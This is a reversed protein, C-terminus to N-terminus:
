KTVIPPPPALNFHYNLGARVINGDFRTRAFPAAVTFPAGLSTHVLPPMAFSVGGLDYFLYEVKLSWNPYFLWEVGGGATWGALTQDFTGFSFAPFFTARSFIQGIAVNAQADGYALGGTGYILFTPWLLFGVRVRETGLWDLNRTATLGQFLRSGLNTTNAVSFVTERRSSSAIGQLDGEAGILWNNWQYNYGWQGGGIFGDFRVGVGTTALAASALGLPRFGATNSVNFTATTIQNDSSWTYGANLGVFYGTWQPPPPPPPPPLPEAARAVASLAMAGAAALLIRRLM